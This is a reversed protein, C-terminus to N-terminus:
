IRRIGKKPSPNLHLDTFNKDKYKMIAAAGIMAANDTCFQISPIFINVDNKQAYRTFVERLQSNAAVGGALLLRNVSHSKLARITKKFLVEVIATQFSACFDHIENSEQDIDHKKRYLSAATKLGSFSFDFNDQHLMPRPFDIKNNKGKKASADIEPGGPYSFGLLKGIKDFAEGAADDVTRGLVQFDTVSRFLVLETHGGSVILSIFPFEVAPHEIFNAFVHGMIHNVAILPKNLSAALGKAFSVGVLLSGILGPNVAVAVADIASLECEAEKLATDVVPLIGRIHERSALEPVIGGFVEHVNQSLTINSLLKYSGNIVAASTDDCSTEIALIRM